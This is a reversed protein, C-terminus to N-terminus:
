ESRLTVVPDISRARRVPVACAIMALVALLGAAPAFLTALDGPGYSAKPVLRVAASTLLLGLGAGMATVRLGHGLVSRAIDLGSAGLAVRVGLEHTRREVAHSIVAYVGASAILVAFTAFLGILVASFRERWLSDSVVESMTSLEIVGIEANMNHVAQRLANGISAADGRTRAILWANPSPEFSM